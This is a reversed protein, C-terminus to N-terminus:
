AERGLTGVYLADLRALMAPLAYTTRVRELAAAGLRAARRRDEIVTVLAKALEGPDRPPVLLGTVGDEVILPTGGVRSAVVPLGTAMAELLANSSAESRSPLAFVDLARLAEAPTDTAGALTVADGLGLAAIRASLEERCPGDGHVVVQVRPCRERVLAAATVLDELGKEPRLVGLTGVTVTGDEPRRTAPHFRATDVGNPVLVIREPPVVREARLREAVAESNVVVAHAARLVLRYVRRERPSRLDGLERQSAVVRRGALRAALVGLVDSYFDFCHVLAIHSRRLERALALVAPVLRHPHLSGRGVSKATVGAAILRERLPGQTRLCAVRVDWRSRDLGCAVEVFQGESGGRHLTDGLLLVTRRSM